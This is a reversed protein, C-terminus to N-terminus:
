NYARRMQFVAAALRRGFDADAAGFHGICKEAIGPRTVQALSGALAAVLRVKEEERMLRYLSGAQAFDDDAPRKPPPQSAAVGAVPLAASAQGGAPVPGGRSNPEYNPEAGGNDDCRM